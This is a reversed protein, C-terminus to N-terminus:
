YGEDVLARYILETDGTSDFRILDRMVDALTKTPSSPRDMMVESGPGEGRNIGATIPEDPRSSPAMLPTIPEMAPVTPASQGAAMPAATQQDMTNQGYPMGSMYKAGQTPGGDTRQSLAGPGSAPAPNEPKRYGGQQAM